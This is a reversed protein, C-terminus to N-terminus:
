KPEQGIGKMEQGEPRKQSCTEKGADTGPACWSRRGPNTVLHFNKGNGRKYKGHGGDRRRQGTEGRKPMEETFM